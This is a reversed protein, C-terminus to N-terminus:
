CRNSSGEVSYATMSRVVDSSDGYPNASRLELESVIWATLSVGGLVVDEEGPDVVALDSLDDPLGHRTRRHGALYAFVEFKQGPQSTPGM